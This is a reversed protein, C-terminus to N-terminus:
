CARMRPSGDPLRTDHGHITVRPPRPFRGDPRGYQGAQKESFRVGCKRMLQRSAQCVLQRVVRSRASPGTGPIRSDAATAGVAM